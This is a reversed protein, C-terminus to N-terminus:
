WVKGLMPNWSHIGPFVSARFMLAAVTALVAWCMLFCLPGEGEQNSLFVWPSYFMSLFPPLLFLRQTSFCSLNM